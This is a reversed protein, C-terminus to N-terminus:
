DAHFQARAKDTILAEFVDNEQQKLTGAKALTATRDLPEMDTSWVVDIDLFFDLHEPGPDLLYQSLTLKINNGCDYEIRSALDRMRGPFSAIDPPACQVLEQLFAKISATDKPVAIKNIYRVGIRATGVPAAVGWYASLAEEIRPLFEGWGGTEPSDPSQYPRLMHVSIVDRGVGIMRTANDDVLMVKGLGERAQLEPANGNSTNLTTELTRQERPPGGYKEGVKTRLIGPITLDWERSPAFRFECLAEEIPPNKYRQRMEASRGCSLRDACGAGGVDVPPLLKIASFAHIQCAYRFVWWAAVICSDM